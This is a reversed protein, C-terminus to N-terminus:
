KGSFDLRVWSGSPFTDGRKDEQYYLDEREHEEGTTQSMTFAVTFLATVLLWPRYLFIPRKECIIAIDLYLM